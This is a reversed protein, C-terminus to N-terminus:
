HGAYLADVESQYRSLIVSRKLKLTPTLLGNEVSMAEGLLAVGGLRVYGPFGHLCPQLQELVHRCIVPHHAMTDDDSVPLKLTRAIRALADPKPVVLATLFSKGDGVVMVQELLPCAALAQEIDAPPVKEGTSM